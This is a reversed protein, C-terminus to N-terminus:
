FGWEIFRFSKESALGGRIPIAAMDDGELALKLPVAGITATITETIAYRLEPEIKVTAAGAGSATVASVIDFVQYADSDTTRISMRTGAALVQNAPLGTLSLSRVQAAAVAVTASINSGVIPDDFSTGDSFEYTDSFEATAGTSLLGIGSGDYLLTWNGRGRMAHAFGSVIGKATRHMAPTTLDMVWHGGPETSTVSKGSLPSTYKRSRAVLFAAPERQPLQAPATVDEGM